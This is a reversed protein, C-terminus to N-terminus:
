MWSTHIKFPRYQNTTPRPEPPLRPSSRWTDLKDVFGQNCERM